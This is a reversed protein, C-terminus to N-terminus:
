KHFQCEFRIPDDYKKNLFILFKVGRPHNAEACVVFLASYLVRENTHQKENHTPRPPCFLAVTSTHKKIQQRTNRNQKKKRKKQNTGM